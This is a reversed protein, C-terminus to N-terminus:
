PDRHAWSVSEAPSRPGGSGLCETSHATGSTCIWIGNGACHVVDRVVGRIVGANSNELSKVATPPTTPIPCPTGAPASPCHEQSTKFCRTTEVLQGTHGLFKPDKGAKTGNLLYMSTGEVLTGYSKLQTGM